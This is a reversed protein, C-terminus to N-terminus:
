KIMFKQSCSGVILLYSGKQFGKLDISDTTSNLIGTMLEKGDMSHVSFNATEGNARHIKLDSQAPNPSVSLGIGLEQEDVAATSGNIDYRSFFKWIEINSSIDLNGFAGPWDHDGNYVKFLEVTAGNTGGSYVFHDVTSGDGSNIDPIPTQSPTTSCNNYNVWYNIVNDIGEAFPGGEYPVTGDDTGHIQLVPTPHNPSCSGFTSPSMSGTVSAIAAIKDSLQCALLYSMFGGNSMGTSYIRDNNLNYNDNVYDIMDEVFAVDDVSSSGWGVNWHPTGFLDQTGQPHILIFGATDAVPRFGTYSINASASSGYGHLCFVLPAPTSEDYIDPVYLFFDRDVGGSSITISQTQQAFLLTITFFFFLTSIIKM